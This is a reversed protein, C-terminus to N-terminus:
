NMGQRVVPSELLARERERKETHALMNSHRGDSAISHTISKIRM